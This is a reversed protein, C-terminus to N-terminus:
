RAGARADDYEDHRAVRVGNGRGSPVLQEHTAVQQETM